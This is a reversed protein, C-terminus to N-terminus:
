GSQEVSTERHRTSAYGLSAQHFVWDLRPCVFSEGFPGRVGETRHVAADIPEPFDLNSENATSM